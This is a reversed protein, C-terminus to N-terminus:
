QAAAEGGKKAPRKRRKARGAIERALAANGDLFAARIRALARGVAPGSLGMAVLDGGSVPARRSRDECAFRVIRRRMPAPACVLLAHLQDEDLSSLAADIAGRGRAGALVRLWGDRARPFEGIRRVAAGRVALRRLV